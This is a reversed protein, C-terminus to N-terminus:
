QALSEFRRRLLDSRVLSVNDAVIFRLETNPVTERDNPGNILAKSFLM